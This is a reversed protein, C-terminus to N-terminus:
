GRRDPVESADEAGDGGRLPPGIIELPDIGAGIGLKGGAADAPGIDRTQHELAIEVSPPPVHRCQRSPNSGRGPLASM